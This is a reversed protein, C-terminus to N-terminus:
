VSSNELNFKKRIFAIFLLLVPFIIQTLMHFYMNLFKRGVELFHEVDSSAHLIALPIIITGISILISRHDKVNFIQAIGVAAGYTWGGVKFFVGAVMLLIILADFRELFDAISVQRTASLLPFNVKSYIEPGLVSMIMITNVILLIGGLMIVAMGIKRAHQKNNLFPFFMLIIITEGFTVITHPFAEKVIPKVGNGGVPTLNNMNFQEVSLLLVWVLVIAFMYVPFVVEGMRGFAEVGGRLCYIVLVMFSGIVVVIPTKTLITGIILEGFNRCASSCLFVFYFIYILNIPFGLYKGIIKPIMQILTDGPYYASLKTYVFMLVLGCLMGVVISLWADRNAGVGLAFIVTNGVEFGVIVYFLQLSSIKKQEM